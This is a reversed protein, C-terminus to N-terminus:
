VNMGYVMSAHILRPGAICSLQIAPVPDEARAGRADASSLYTCVEAALASCDVLTQDAMATQDLHWLVVLRMIYLQFIADVAEEEQENSDGDPIVQQRLRNVLQVGHSFCIEAKEYDQLDVWAQGAQEDILHFRILLAKFNTSCVKIGTTYNRM